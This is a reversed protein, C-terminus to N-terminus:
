YNVYLRFSNNLKRVFLIFANALSKLPWIFRNAFNTEIYTKLIKLEVLGLSYTLRYPLQQDKQLKIAHQNLKSAEPLILAKKELFVDLFDSYEIPIKVEKTVLLVIQAKKAPHIAMTLLSIMHVVFVEVHEHLAAKAFEKRDIIKVQKITSLTEAITYFRWIFEKQAFKIDANSFTLFLIELVVKISFDVLLFTKQFFWPKELKDEVQFSALVIGFIKLTSGNIKQAGVNTPYVKLGLKSAYAPTIVNVKSGFNTLAQVQVESKKFWIPYCICPVWDLVVINKQSTEIM